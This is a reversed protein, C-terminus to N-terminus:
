LSSIPRINGDVMTILRDAQLSLKENHTVLVFTMGRERNLTRLLEFVEDSTHTDLNGTPEDALILKPNLVLARAIAVRQQEGGSLEGPKHHVRHSLGVGDLLELAATKLKKQSRRSILGPMMVNELATFEHLLHHFQFIFGIKQNRFQALELDTQAFLDIDEFFVKGSTPRDLAGLLTLLTSKGVGSPGVIALMEGAKIDFTVGKLIHLSEDSMRFSRHLDIVQIM